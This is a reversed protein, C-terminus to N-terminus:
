VAPSAGLGITYDRAQIAPKCGVCENRPAARTERRPHRLHELRLAAVWESHKVLLASLAPSGSFLAALLRAQATSARALERALPTAGL